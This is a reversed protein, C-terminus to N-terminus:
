LLAPSDESSPFDFLRDYTMVTVIGSSLARYKLSYKPNIDSRRGIIVISPAEADIQELHHHNRAYSINERLWTRWDSIQALAEGLKASPRGSKILPSQTPSEIEVYTWNFGRSNRHCLLFDPFLEGGLSQRDFCWFDACSPVLQRLFAPVTALYTQLPREDAAASLIRRLDAFNLESPTRHQVYRAPWPERCRTSPLRPMTFTPLDLAKTACYVLMM